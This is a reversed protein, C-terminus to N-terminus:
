RKKGHWALHGGWAASALGVAALLIQRISGPPESSALWGLVAAIALLVVILLWPRVVVPRREPPPVPVATPAGCRYCVIAKAAITAGCNGCVM